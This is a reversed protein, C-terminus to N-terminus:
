AKSTPLALQELMAWLKAADAPDKAKSVLRTENKWGSGLLNGFCTGAKQELGPETAVWLPTRAGQEPTRFFPRGLTSFLGGVQKMGETYVLGPLTCFVSMGSGAWRRATEQALLACANKSQCLAGWGDYPVKRSQLDDADFVNKGGGFFFIVRSPAGARLTPELQQNLVFPALVNTAFTMEVGDREAREKLVTAANHFVLHLKPAKARVEDAMRLVDAKSSLDAIVTQVDSGWEAVEAEMKEASRGHAIVLYGRALLGKVLERGIGSTTGTVLATKKDSM